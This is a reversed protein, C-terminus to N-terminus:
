YNKGHKHPRMSNYRLKYSVHRDIDVGYKGCLDLLRIIADAIEDWFTDKFNAEFARKFEEDELSSLAGVVSYLPTAVAGTKRHVEMAEALESVILMLLTGIQREDDWFGKEVNGDHISEALKRLGEVHFKKM